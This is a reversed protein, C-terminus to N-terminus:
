RYEIMANARLEKLYRKAQAAFRKNMMEERVERKGPVESTTEKKNCIAYLEIGQRTEEPPTLRGEPTKDLIERLQATLDASTRYVPDRVAVDKMGRAMAVGEDCNQFRARLGEAEKRRAALVGEPSGRPVILLIPQLMYEYGVAPQDDKRRSVLADHIDRERVHFNAQFKGRIIQTWAMDAKIRNKVMEPSIGAASLAQAFQQPTSGARTAINNFSADVEATTIDLKYRRAVHLKLKEDILEDLVEQRPPTKHTSVQILKSRQTVDLATIPEGNVLAVVQQAAAPAPPMAILFLTFAAALRRPPLLRTMTSRPLNPNPDHM